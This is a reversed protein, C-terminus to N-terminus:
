IWVGPKDRQEQRQEQEDADLQDRLRRVIESHHLAMELHGKRAAGGEAQLALSFERFGQRLHHDVEEHLTM